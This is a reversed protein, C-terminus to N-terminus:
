WMWVLGAAAPHRHGLRLPRAAGACGMVPPLQFRTITTTGLRASRPCRSGCCTARSIRRPSPAAASSTASSNISFTAHHLLFLRVAGGWLLGTLAGDLTGTLLYGFAFPFALGLAVWLLFMRDVFSAVPDALLDKGYHQEDAM